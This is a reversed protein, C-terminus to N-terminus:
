APSEGSTTTLHCSLSSEDSLKAPRSMWSPERVHSASLAPWDAPSSWLAWTCRGGARVDWPPHIGGRIGPKGWFCTGVSLASTARSLTVWGRFDRLMLEIASYQNCILWLSCGLNLSAPVTWMGWCSSYWLIQSCTLIIMADKIQQSVRILANFTYVGEM